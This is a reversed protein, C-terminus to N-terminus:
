KLSVVREQAPEVKFADVVEARDALQGRPDLLLYEREAALKLQQLGDGADALADSFDEDRLGATVHGAERGCAVEGRPGSDARAVVFGGALVFGASSAVVQVCGM